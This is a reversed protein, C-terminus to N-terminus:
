LTKKLSLRNLFTLQEYSSFHQFISEFESITNVMCIFTLNGVISLIDRLDAANQM